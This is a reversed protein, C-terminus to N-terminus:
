YGGILAGHFAAGIVFLAVGIAAGWFFSERASV